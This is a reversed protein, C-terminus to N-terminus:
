SSTQDHHSIYMELPEVLDGVILHVREEIIKHQQTMTVKMQEIALTM